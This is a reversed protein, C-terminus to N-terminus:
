QSYKITAFDESTDNGFSAGTVYVNLSSDVVIGSALDDDKGEGDYREAWIKKGSSNFKVTAFDFDTKGPSDGTAYVNGTDDLAIAKLQDDGHVPGDYRGVWLQKGNTNYKIVGFDWNNASGWIDGGVYVNGQNDLVMTKAFDSGDGPGNYYKIWLPAGASSYKITVFDQTAGVSAEGAVYVNGKADVAIARGVDFYHQPGDYRNLWVQNGTAGDYKITAIDVMTKLTGNSQGTVCPNGSPDVAIAFPTDILNSPGNYRAEWLKKGSANYKLTLYDFNGLGSPDSPGTVYINDQTDVAIATATDFGHAPGDYRKAWIQKGSPSYKITVFDSNTGKGASGGTVYVNDKSDLAIAVAADSGGAPGNYRAIWLEKGAPDYKVTLIDALTETVSSGTVIVNGKSDKAIATPIDSLNYKSNYRKVWEQEVTAGAATKFSLDATEAMANGSTQSLVLLSLSCVIMYYFSVGQKRGSGTKKM